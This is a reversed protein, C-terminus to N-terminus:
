SPEDLLEPAPPPTPPVAPKGSGGCITCVMDAPQGPEYGWGKCHGCKPEHHRAPAKV